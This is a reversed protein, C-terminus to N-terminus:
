GIPAAREILHLLHRELEERTRCRYSVLARAAPPVIRTDDVNMIWLTLRGTKSRALALDFEDYCWPSCAYDSCWIAVFIDARHLNEEIQGQVNKGAGFDREDRYVVFNRRRLVTEVFDAEGPRSRPYSIFFRLSQTKGAKGRQSTSLEEVVSVVELIRQKQLLIAVRDGLRDELEFRRRQYSQAAAGGLYSLPVVNKRRSEALILLLSSAGQLRGGICVIAQSRDMAALQALLWSYEWQPQGQDNLMLPHALLRILQHNFAGTLKGIEDRVNPSEPFHFEVQPGAECRSALERMVGHVACRDASTPFPSCVLLDHGAQAVAAGFKGMTDDLVDQQARYEDDSSTDTLGGIVFIRM